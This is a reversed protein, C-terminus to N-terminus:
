RREASRVRVDGNLTEFTLEPGGGGVRFSAFRDSKLVFRNGRRESSARTPLAVTEFDTYLGGNMTKLRLDASLSGPFRVDVHGNVTKFESSGAPAAVFTADLDGNVTSAKGSGRLEVMELDGNVNRLTYPGETKEVHLTGGNVACVDLTVARPVRVDFDVRVKTRDWDGRRSDRPWEIHCGCHRSDGCALLRDGQERFDVTAGADNSAGQREVTRTAVIQVDSRNEGVIRVEGSINSLELTRSSTGSPWALTRRITESEAARLGPLLASLGPAIMTLVAVAMSLLNFYWSM